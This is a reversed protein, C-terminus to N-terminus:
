LHRKAVAESVERGLEKAHEETLKSEELIERALSFQIEELFENLIREVALEFKPELGAPVDLKLTIEEM